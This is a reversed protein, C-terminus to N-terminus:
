SDVCFCYHKLDRRDVCYSQNYYRNIRSIFGQILFRDGTTHEVTAEFEAGSPLVRLMLQYLSGTSLIEASNLSVASMIIDLRLEACKERWGQTMSNIKKVVSYASMKVASSKVDVPRYHHCVCFHRSIEADKCTRSSPVETFLSIGPESRRDQDDSALSAPFNLIDKLTKYIDFQTTLRDRNINLNNMAAPYRNRFWKPFILFMFPAREELKGTFTSRIKGYRIGHDSMIVMATRENRDFFHKLFDVTPIDAYGANNLENHTLRTLYILGFYRSKLFTNLFQEGYDLVTKFELKSAICHHISTMRVDSEHVAVMHPRFYYDTPPHIFGLKQFNFMGFDPADEALMTKYGRRAFDKWIMDLHDFSSGSSENWYYPLHKGTLLPVINEITADGVKNFSKLEIADNEMLLRKTRVFHRHFNLRSVSDIGLVVVNLIQDPYEKASEACRREVDRKVFVFSLFEEHFTEEELDTCTIKVFEDDIRIPSYRFKSNPRTLFFVTDDPRSTNSGRVIASYECENLKSEEYREEMKNKNVKIMNGDIVDIVSPKKECRYERVRYYFRKAVEDFPDLNPFICAQQTLHREHIKYEPSYQWM